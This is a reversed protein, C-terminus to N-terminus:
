KIGAHFQIDQLDHIDPRLELSISRGYVRNCTIDCFGASTVPKCISQAMESHVMTIPFIIPGDETMIYKM